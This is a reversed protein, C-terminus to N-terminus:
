PDVGSLVLSIGVLQQNYEVEENRHPMHVSGVAGVAISGTVLLILSAPVQLVTDSIMLEGSKCRKEDSQGRGERKSRDSRLSDWARESGKVKSKQSKRISCSTPM